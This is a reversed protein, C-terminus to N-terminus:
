WTAYEAFGNDILDDICDTINGEPLYKSIIRSLKEDNFRIGICKKIKLLGLINSKIPSGYFNLIGDIEHIYLHIKSLSILGPNNKCEFWGTIKQPAGILSTIATKTCYFGRVERPAGILSELKPNNCCSFDTVGQQPAGILSTLEPNNSCDFEGEIKKPSGILSKLNKNACGFGYINELESGDKTFEGDEISAFLEMLVRARPMKEEAELLYQKFTTKM